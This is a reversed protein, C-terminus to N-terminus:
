WDPALTTRSGKSLFSSFPHPTPVLPPLIRPVFKTNQAHWTNQHNFIRVPVAHLVIPVARCPMARCTLNHHHCVRSDQKILFCEVNNASANTHRHPPPSAVTGLATILLPFFCPFPYHRLFNGSMLLCSRQHLSPVLVLLVFYLVHPFPHLSFLPPKFPVWRHHNRLQHHAFCWLFLFWLFFLSIVDRRCEKSPGIGCSLPAALGSQDFARLTIGTGAHKSGGALVLHEPSKHGTLSPSFSLSFFFSYTHTYIHTHTHRSWGHEGFRHLHSYIFM